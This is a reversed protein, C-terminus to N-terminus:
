RLALFQLLLENGCITKLSEPHFMVGYIPKDKHRVGVVESGSYLVPSLACGTEIIKERHAATATFEPPTGLMGEGYVSIVEPAQGFDGLTGGFARVICMCGLCVGLIPLNQWGLIEQTMRNSVLESRHPGGTIIMHTMQSKIEDPLPLTACQRWYSKGVSSLWATVRYDPDATAAEFDFVVLM